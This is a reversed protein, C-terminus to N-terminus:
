TPHFPQRQAQDWPGKKKGRLFGMSWSFVSNVDQLTRFGECGCDCLSDKAIVCTTYRRSRRHVQGGLFNITLCIVSKAGGARMSSTYQMGDGFVGIPHVCSPYEMNVDPHRCWEEVLQGLQGDDESLLHTDNGPTEVVAAVTEHPLFMSHEKDSGGPGRAQFRYPGPLDQVLGSMEAARLIDRQINQDHLGSTGVTALQEAKTSKGWKGTDWAMAVICLAEEKSKADRLNVLMGADLWGWGDDWASKALGSM